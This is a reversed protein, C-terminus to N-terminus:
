INYSVVKKANPIINQSYEGEYYEVQDCISFNLANTTEKLGLTSDQGKM